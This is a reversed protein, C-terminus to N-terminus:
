PSFCLGIQLKIENGKEIIKAEYNNLEEIKLLIEDLEVINVKREGVLIEEPIRNGYKTELM